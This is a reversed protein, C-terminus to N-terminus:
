VNSNQQNLLWAYFVARGWLGAIEGHGMDPFITYKLNPNVPELAYIM